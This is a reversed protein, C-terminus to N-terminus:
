MTSLKYFLSAMWGPMHPINELVTAFEETTLRKKLSKIIELTAHKKGIYWLATIVTGAITGPAIIKRASIHQLTVCRNGINIQRTNGTTYFISQMPVQTTLQLQRAAEAGHIAVTEGTTQAIATVIQQASPMIEGVHASIKPKVYIGRMLRKIEGAKTLRSLVQWSNEISALHRFANATFPQGEPINDIYNQLQQNATM